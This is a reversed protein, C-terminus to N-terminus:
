MWLTVKIQLELNSDEKVYAEYVERNMEPIQDNIDMIDIMVVTTGINGKSDIAQLTPSYSNTGEWDLREGNKVYITGNNEYVDFLSRSFDTQSPFMSFFVNLTMM